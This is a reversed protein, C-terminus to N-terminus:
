MNSSNECMSRFLGDTKNILTWPHDFEIVRGHDLVLVKDYDIITQLRHAITIITCDRLERLMEQTKSDSSYGISATAEDM